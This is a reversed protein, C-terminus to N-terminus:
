HARIFYTEGWFTVEIYDGKAEEAAAEFDVSMHRWPWNESKMEKPMEYCDDILQEIYVTFHSERILTEGHNWDSVHDCQAALSRLEELKEVALNSM